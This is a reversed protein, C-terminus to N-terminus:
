ETIKYIMPTYKIGKSIQQKDTDIFGLRHYFEIAYPSSNVTINKIVEYRICKEKVINFLKKGIGKRHYDKDIFLLCIHNLNRIGIIGILKYDNFYGWLRLENKKFKNIINDISIFKKFEEVGESSYDPVEFEEFVKWILNLANRIDEEKLERIEM